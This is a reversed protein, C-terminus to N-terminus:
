KRIIGKAGLSDEVFKDATFRDTAIMNRERKLMDATLGDELGTLRSATLKDGTSM